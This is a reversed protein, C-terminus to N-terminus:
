LPSAPAVWLYLRTGDVAVEKAPKWSGMSFSHSVIRTGPKLERLLKPKLRLNLDELLYLTVVTAERIDADFLDQQLFRVRGAVGARRANERAQRVREPNVEVGAGRAGFERAAAIVIRGDGSGLDYVVDDPKVQALKLMATVVACPTTVYPAHISIQEQALLVFTLLELM